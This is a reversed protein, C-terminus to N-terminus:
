RLPKYPERSDVPGMLCNHHASSPERAKLKHKLSKVLKEIEIESLLIESWKEKCFLM